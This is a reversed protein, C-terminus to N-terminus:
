HFRTDMAKTRKPQIKGNVVAEAMSNDTQLPTPPHKHGMEELIIRIYVAERAILYLAALEAETSSSMVHKIIHAINLLSGNNQPITSDSSLLFHGGARSCAKPESLYRSNSHASLKMDSAKFTLVAEEQTSIYDLLQQTQRITYETPTASQSAIAGIPFLLTSDVAQGLFLFNGCVQQIFKKGKRDLLPATSQPTDYQKNAGYIIQTSPCPQHQKKQLKHNFKNLAKTVYQSM